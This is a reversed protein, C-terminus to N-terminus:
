QRWFDIDLTRPDNINDVSVSLLVRIQNRTAAQSRPRAQYDQYSITVSRTPSKRSYFPSIHVQSSRAVHLLQSYVTALISNEDRMEDLTDILARISSTNYTSAPTNNWAAAAMFETGSTSESVGAVASCTDFIYCVSGPFLELNGGASKNGHDILHQLFEIHSNINPGVPITYSSTEFGHHTKFVELLETELHEVNLNGNAWHFALVSVKDYSRFSSSDDYAWCLEYEFQSVLKTQQPRTVSRTFAYLPKPTPTTSNM